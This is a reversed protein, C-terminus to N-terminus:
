SVDEMRKCVAIREDAWAHAKRARQETAKNNDVLGFAELLSGQWLESGVPRSLGREDKATVSARVSNTDLVEVTKTYTIM